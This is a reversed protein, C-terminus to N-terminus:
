AHTCIFQTSAREPNLFLEFKGNKVKNQFEIINVFYYKRQFNLIIIINNNNINYESM